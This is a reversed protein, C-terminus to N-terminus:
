RKLVRICLVYLHLKYTEMIMPMQEDSLCLARLVCFLLDYLTQPIKIWRFPRPNDSFLCNHPSRNGHSQSGVRKAPTGHFHWSASIWYFLTWSCRESTHSNQRMTPEALRAGCACANQTSQLTTFQFKWVVPNSSMRRSGCYILMEDFATLQNGHLFFVVSSTGLVTRPFRHVSAVLKTM